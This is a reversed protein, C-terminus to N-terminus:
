FDGYIFSLIKKSGTNDENITKAGTASKIIQLINPETENLFLNTILNYDTDPLLNKLEGDVDTSIVDFLVKISRDLKDANISKYGQLFKVVINVNFLYLDNGLKTKLLEYLEKIKLERSSEESVVAGKLKNITALLKAFNEKHIQALSNPKKTKGQEQNKDASNSDISYEFNAVTSIIEDITVPQVPQKNEPKKNSNSSM